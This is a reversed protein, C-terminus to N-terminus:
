IIRTNGSTTQNREQVEQKKNELKIAYKEAQEKFFKKEKELKKPKEFIEAEKQSPEFYDKLSKLQKQLKEVQKRLEDNQKGYAEHERKRQNLLDYLKEMEQKGNENITKLQRIKSEYGAKESGFRIQLERSDWSNRREGEMQKELRRLEDELAGKERTFAFLLEKRVNELEIRRGAEDEIGEEDVRKQRALLERKLQENETIKETLQEIKDALSENLREIEDTLVLIKGEYDKLKRNMDDLRIELDVREQRFEGIIENRVEEGVIKQRIDIKRRLEDVVEQHRKEERELRLRWLQGDKEYGELEKAQKGNERKLEELGLTLEDIEFKGGQVDKSKENIELDLLEIRKTLEQVLSPLSLLRENDSKVYDFEETKNRLLAYFKEVEALLSRNNTLLEMNSREVLSYKEMQSRFENIQRDKEEIQRDKGRSAEELHRLNLTLLVLQSEQDPIRSYMGVVTTKFKSVKNSLTDNEEKLYVNLRSLREIESQIKINDSLNSISQFIEFPQIKLFSTKSGSFNVQPSFKTAFGGDRSMSRELKADPLKSGLSESLVRHSIKHSPSLSYNVRQSSTDM